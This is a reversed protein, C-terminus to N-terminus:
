HSNGVQYGPCVWDKQTELPHHATQQLADKKITAAAAAM